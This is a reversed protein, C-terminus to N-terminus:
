ALAFQGCLCLGADGRMFATALHVNAFQCAHDGTQRHEAYDEGQDGGQRRADQEGRPRDDSQDDGDGELDAGGDCLGFDCTVALGGKGTPPLARGKRGYRDHQGQEFLALDGCTEDFAYRAQVVWTFKEVDTQDDFLIVGDCLLGDGASFERAPHSLDDHRTAPDFGFGAGQIEREIEAAARDHANIVGFIRGLGFLKVLDGRMECLRSRLHGTNLPNEVEVIRAGVPQRAAERDFICCPETHDQGTILSHPQGHRQAAGGQKEAAIRDLFEAAPIGMVHGFVGVEANTQGTM